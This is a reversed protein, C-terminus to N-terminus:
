PWLSSVPQILDEMIKIYRGAICPRPHPGHGGPQRCRRPTTMSREPSRDRADCSQLSVLLIIIWKTKGAAMGSRQLIALGDVLGDLGDVICRCRSRKYLLAEDRSKKKKKKKKKKLIFNVVACGGVLVAFM